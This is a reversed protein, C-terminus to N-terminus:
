VMKKKKTTDPMITQEIQKLTQNLIQQHPQKIAQQMM